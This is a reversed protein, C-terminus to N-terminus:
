KATVWGCAIWQAAVDEPVQATEGPGFVQGHDVVQFPPNVVVFVLPTGPDGVGGDKAEAAAM